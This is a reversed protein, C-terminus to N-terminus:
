LEFHCVFCVFNLFAGDVPCDRVFPEFRVFEFVANYYMSDFCIRDIEEFVVLVCHSASFSPSFIVLTVANRRLCVGVALRESITNVSSLSAAFLTIVRPNM